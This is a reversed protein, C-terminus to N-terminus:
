MCRRAYRKAARLILRDPAGLAALDVLLGRAERQLRARLEQREAAHCVDREYQKMHQHVQWHFAAREYPDDEYTAM